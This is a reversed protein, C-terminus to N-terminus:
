VHKRGWYEVLRSLLFRVFRIPKTIQWSFSSKIRAVDATLEEIRKHLEALEVRLHGRQQIEGAWPAVLHVLRQTAKRVEDLSATFGQPDHASTCVVYTQLALELFENSAPSQSLADWHRLAPELFEEVERVRETGSIELPISLNSSVAVMASRWDNLVQDYTIVARPYGRTWEEADLMHQLWLLYSRSEHFGDRRALSAAVEVPHRAIIIFLPQCELERLIDLWLPMLRCVRPDKLGWLPVDGFDRRLIALIEERFPRIMDAVWWRVPLPREDNWSSHLAKLLREHVAVIDSHEWYGKANIEAHPEMLADGLEVGLIKLVGTLASTGSRHMGLIILAKKSAPFHSTTEM